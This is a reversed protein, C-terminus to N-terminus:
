LAHADRESREDRADRADRADREDRPNDAAAGDASLALRYPFNVRLLAHRLGAEAALARAEAASYARRVSVPADHCTMANMRTLRTLAIVGAWALPSRVVDYVLTRQGVRALSRLLRVAEDPAFHHLALTCLAVDFAGTPYPLALADQQEVTIAPTAACRERAIAVIQPSRDTVTIRLNVGARQAARAIAIPIDASGSAVDLLSWARDPQTRLLRIIDRTAFSTWGLAANIRRIDRLNEALDHSNMREADLWETAAADRTRWSGMGRESEGRWRWDMQALQAPAREGCGAVM